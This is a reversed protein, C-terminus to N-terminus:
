GAHLHRGEIMGAILGRTRDTLELVGGEVAIPRGFEIQISSKRKLRLLSGKPLADWTGTIAVPVVPLGAEKAIAFAGKKFTGLAGDRSRTGEAFFVLNCDPWERMGERIARMAQEHNGRDVIV